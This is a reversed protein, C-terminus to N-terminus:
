PQRKSRRKLYRAKVEAVTLLKDKGTKYATRRKGLEAYLDTLDEEDEPAFYEQLVAAIMKLTRRDAMKLGACISKRLEENTKKM